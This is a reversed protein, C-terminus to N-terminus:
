TRRRFEGSKGPRSTPPQNKRGKQVPRRVLDCDLCSTLLADAVLTGVAFPPQSSPTAAATDVPEDDTEPVDPEAEDSASSARARKPQTPAEAADDRNRKLMFDASPAPAPTTPQTYDTNAHGTERPVVWTFTPTRDLAPTRDIATSM